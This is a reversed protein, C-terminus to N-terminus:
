TSASLLAQLGCVVEDLSSEGLKYLEAWLAIRLLLPTMDGPPTTTTTMTSTTGSRRGLGGYTEGASLLLLLVACDPALGANTIWNPGTMWVPLVADALGGVFLGIGGFIYGAQLLLEAPDDEDREGGGDERRPTFATSPGFRRRASSLRALDADDYARNYLLGYYVGLSLPWFYRLTQVWEYNSLLDGLIGALSGTALAVVILEPSRDMTRPPPPRQPEGPDELAPPPTGTMMTMAPLSDPPHDGSNRRALVEALLPTRRSAFTAFGDPEAASALSADDDDATGTADSGPNPITTAPHNTTTMTMTKTTKKGEEANDDIGDIGEPAERPTKRLSVSPHKDHDDDDEDDNNSNTEPSAFAM